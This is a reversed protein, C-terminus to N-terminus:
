QARVPLTFFFGSGDDPQSKVWLRGGHREVVRRCIAL